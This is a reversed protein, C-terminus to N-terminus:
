GGGPQPPLHAVDDVGGGELLPPEGRGGVQGDHGRLVEELLRRVGDEDHSGAVRLLDGGDDPLPNSFLHLNQCQLGIMHLCKSLLRGSLGSLLCVSSLMQTSPVPLPPTAHRGPAPASAARRPSEAAPPPSERSRRHAYPT